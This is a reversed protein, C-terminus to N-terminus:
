LGWMGMDRAAVGQSQDLEIIGRRTWHYQLERVM